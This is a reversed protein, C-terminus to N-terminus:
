SSPIASVGPAQFSGGLVRLGLDRFGFGQLGLSSVGFGLYYM